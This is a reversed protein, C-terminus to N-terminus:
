QELRAKYYREAIEHYGEDKLVSPDIGYTTGHVHGEHREGVKKLIGRDILDNARKRGATVSFGVLDGVDSKIVPENEAIAALITADSVVEPWDVPEDAAEFFERTSIHHFLGMLKAIEESSFGMRVLNTGYTARVDRSTVDRGIDARDALKSLRRELSNVSIPTSDYRAFWWYLTRATTEDPIPISRVRCDSDPQGPHWVEYGLDNCYGCRGTRQHIELNTGLKIGRCDAETPIRIIPTDGQYAEVSEPLPELWNDHMHTFETATLGTHLLVMLLRDVFDGQDAAQRFAATQERTLPDGNM